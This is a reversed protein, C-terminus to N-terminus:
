YYGPNQDGELAPNLEIADKPIPRLHHHDKIDGAFLEPNYRVGYEALKGTRKLNGWRHNEGALERARERLLYDIDLQAATALIAGARARVENIYPLADAPRNLKILAEAAILYTEGVRALVVDRKSANTHFIDKNLVDDFKRFSAVGYVDKLKEEYSSPLKGINDRYETIYVIVADARSPLAARWAVTDALLWEPCYYYTVPSIDKKSGDYYDWYSSRLEIMFTAEYRQDATPDQTDEAFVQHMWLTPSLTSTTYKHGKEQGDLYAGFNAQQKNGETNKNNM